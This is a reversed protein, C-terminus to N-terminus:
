PISRLARREPEPCRESITPEPFDVHLNKSDTPSNISVWDASAEAYYHKNLRIKRYSKKGTSNGKQSNVM